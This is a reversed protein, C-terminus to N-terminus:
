PIELDSLEVGGGVVVNTILVSLENNYNSFM